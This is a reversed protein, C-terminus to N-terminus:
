RRRRSTRWTGWLARGVGQWDGREAARRALERLRARLREDQAVALPDVPRPRALAAVAAELDEATM